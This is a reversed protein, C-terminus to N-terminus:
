HVTKAWIIIEAVQKNQTAKVLHGTRGSKNPSFAEFAARLPWKNWPRRQHDNKPLNVVKSPALSCIPNKNSIMWYYFRLFCGSLHNGFWCMDPEKLRYASLSGLQGTHSGLVLGLRIHRLNVISKFAAEFIWYQLRVTTFIVSFEITM